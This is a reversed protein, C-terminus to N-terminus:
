VAHESEPVQFYFGPTPAPCGPRHWSLTARWYGPYTRHRRLTETWMRGVGVGGLGGLLVHDGRRCRALIFVPQGYRLRFDNSM